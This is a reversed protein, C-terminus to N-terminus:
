RSESSDDKNAKLLLIGVILSPTHGAPTDLSVILGKVDELAPGTDHIDRGRFSWNAISVSARRDSGSVCVESCDYM